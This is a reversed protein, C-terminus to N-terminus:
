FSSPAAAGKKGAPKARTKEARCRQCSSDRCMPGFVCKDERVREIIDVCSVGRRAASLCTSFRTNRSALDSCSATHKLLFRKTAAVERGICAKKEAETRDAPSEPAPAPAAPPAAPPALAAHAAQPASVFADTFSCNVPAGSGGLAYQGVQAPLNVPAATPAAPPAPAVHAAQPASVFADTFSCNVPADSGGLAYQGVQAPLIVPATQNAIMVSYPPVYGPHPPPPPPLPYGGWHQQYAPYGGYAAAGYGAHPPPALTPVWGRMGAHMQHMQHMQHMHSWLERRTVFLGEDGPPAMVPLAAPAPSEPMPAAPARTEPMPAAHPAREASPQTAPPSAAAPAFRSGARANKKSARSVAEGGPAATSSPQLAASEATQASAVPVGGSPLESLPAAQSPQEKNARASPAASQSPRTTGSSAASAPASPAPALSQGPRASAAPEGTVSSTLSRQVSSPQSSSAAAVSLGSPPVQGAKAPAGTTATSSAAAITAPRHAATLKELEIKHQARIADLEASHQQRVANREHEAQHRANRAEDLKRKVQQTEERAARLEDKTRQKEVRLGENKRGAEDLQRELSRLEAQMAQPSPLPKQAAVDGARRAVSARIAHAKGDDERSRSTDVATVARGSLPMGSAVYLLEYHGPMHLVAMISLDAELKGGSKVSLGSRKACESVVLVNCVRRASLAVHLMHSVITGLNM